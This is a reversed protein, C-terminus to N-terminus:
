ADRRFHVVRSDALYDHVCRQERGFIFLADILGFLACLQSIAAAALNRLLILRWLEIEGGNLRVVKIDMMRKGISQGWSVQAWVQAGIAAFFCLTAFGMSLLFLVGGVEGANSSNKAGSAGVGLVFGFTGIIAAPLVVVAHDVLNALFRAGISAPVHDDIGCQSCFWQGGSSRACSACAFTGCRACAIAALVGPHLACNAATPQRPEYM